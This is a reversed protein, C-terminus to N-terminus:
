YSVDGLAPRGLMTCTDLDFLTGTRDMLLSRGPPRGGEGQLPFLTALDRSLLKHPRLQRPPIPLVRAPVSGARDPPPLAPPSASAIPRDAVPAATPIAFIAHAQRPRGTNNAGQKFSRCKRRNQRRPSRRSRRQPVRIRGRTAIQPTARCTIPTLLADADVRYPGRGRRRCSCSCQCM